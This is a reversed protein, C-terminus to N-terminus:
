DIKIGMKKLFKRFKDIRQRNTAHGCFPSRENTVFFIIGDDSYEGTFPILFSTIPQTSGWVPINRVESYIIELSVQEKKTKEIIGKGFITKYASDATKLFTECEHLIEPFYLSQNDLSKQEGKKHLIIKVEQLNIEERFTDMKSVIVGGKRNTESIDIDRAGICGAIILIALFIKKKM